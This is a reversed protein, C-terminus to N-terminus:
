QCPSPSSQIKKPLKWDAPLWLTIEFKISHLKGYPTPTTTAIINHPTNRQQLAWNQAYPLANATGPTLRADVIRFQGKASNNALDMLAKSLAATNSTTDSPASSYKSNERHLKSDAGTRLKFYLKQARRMDAVNTLFHFSRPNWGIADQARLGFTTGIERQNIVGYPPTALLLADPYGAGSTRDVALDWGSYNDDGARIPLIKFIWGQGLSQSWIHGAGM